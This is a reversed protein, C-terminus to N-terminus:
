VSDAWATSGAAPCGLLVAAQAMGWAMCSRMLLSRLSPGPPQGAPVKGFGGPLRAGVRLGVTKTDEQLIRM